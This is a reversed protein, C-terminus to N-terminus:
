KAEANPGTRVLAQAAAARRKWEASSSATDGYEDNWNWWEYPPDAPIRRTLRGM